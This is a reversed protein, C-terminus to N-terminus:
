EPTVQVRLVRKVPDYNTTVEVQEIVAVRYLLHRAKTLQTPLVHYYRTGGGQFHETYNPSTPEYLTTM